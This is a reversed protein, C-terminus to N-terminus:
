GTVLKKGIRSLWSGKNERPKLGGTQLLKYSDNYWQSDPFNHGLVAAASQAENALGLAFYSETLRALAEEVHRTNSYNVVVRRFRNIAALHEEREQYYRGVQMDKGALQDRAVRIKTRADEVYVSDPYREVVENMALIAKNTSAQDRTVDPIQRFYSMGVLYQAYAADEDGPNLAVFRKAQNVAESYKGQRYSLYASMVMSKKAFTSYPHQKDVEKFKKIAESSRGADINALAENYLKDAPETNDVFENTTSGSNTTCAALFLVSGVIGFRATRGIYKKVSSHLEFLNEVMDTDLQAAILAKIDVIHGSDLDSL